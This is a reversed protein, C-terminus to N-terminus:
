FDDCNNMLMMINTEKLHEEYTVELTEYRKPLLVILFVILIKLLLSYYLANM